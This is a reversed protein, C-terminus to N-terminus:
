SKLFVFNSVSKPYTSKEYVNHNKKIRITIRILDTIKPFSKKKELSLYFRNVDIQFIRRIPIKKIM